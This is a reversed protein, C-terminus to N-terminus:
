RRQSARARRHDAPVHTPAIRVHPEIIRQGSIADQMLQLSLGAHREVDLEFREFPLELRLRSGHNWFTTVKLDGPVVIGAESLQRDVGIAMVDDEVILGDLKARLLQGAADYGGDETEPRGVIWSPNPALGAQQMIHAVAGPERFTASSSNFVVGIRRCGQQKLYETAARVYGRHDVQVSYDVDSECSGWMAVIPIRLARSQRVLEDLYQPRKVLLVGCLTRGAVHRLLDECAVNGTGPTNSGLYQRHVRGHSELLRSLHGMILRYYEHKGDESFHDPFSYLAVVGRRPIGKVVTGRRAQRTVYGERALTAMAQHATKYNVQLRACLQHSTPLLTGPTLQRSEIKRRIQECIQEYLPVTSAQDVAIDLKATKMHM